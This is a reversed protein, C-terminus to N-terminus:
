LYRERIIHCHHNEHGIIIFGIARVSLGNGSVTGIRLLANESFSEFLLITSLRLAKYDNMLDDISKDNVESNDVYLDQDFGPLPTKDNRSICLARYSFVRETDILHQIIQKITWKGMEYRFWLKEESIEELFSITKDGNIKLGEKLNLQEAKQIYPLYYPHYEKEALDGKTM